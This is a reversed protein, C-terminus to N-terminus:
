DLFSGLRRLPNSDAEQSRPVRQLLIDLSRVIGAVDAKLSAVEAELREHSANAAAYHGLVTSSAAAAATTPSYNSGSGVASASTHRHMNQFSTVSPM